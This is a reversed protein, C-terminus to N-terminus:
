KGGADPAPAAAVELTMLAALAARLQAEDLGAAGGLAQVALAKKAAKDAAKAAALAEEQAQKEEAQRRAEEEQEQQQAMAAQWTIWILRRGNGEEAGILSPADPSM